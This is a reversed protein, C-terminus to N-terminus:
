SVSAQWMWRGKENEKKALDDPEVTSKKKSCTNEYCKRRDNDMMEGFETDCCFTCFDDTEKCNGLMDTNDPYNATCYNYRDQDTALASVCNESKGQKYAKNMKNAMEIRAQMLQQNLKRKTEDSEKRLKEIQQKLTSRRISIQKAALQKNINIADVTQRKLLNRQNEEEKQKINKILCDSKKKEEDLKKKIEIEENKLREAEERRIMAELDLEKQIAQLAIQNSQKVDKEMEQEDDVFIKRKIEQERDDLVDKKAQAIKAKLKEDDTTNWQARHRLRVTHCQIKFLNFHDFWEDKTKDSTDFGFPCLEARQLGSELIFCSPHEKSSLFETMQLDFVQVQSDYSEGAFITLTKNNMIVRTPIQIHSLENPTAQGQLRPNNGKNDNVAQTYMLDSEKVICKSYRQPRTSFPLVKVVPKLTKVLPNLGMTNNMTKPCPQTNCPRTLVDPGSCSAGGNKPPVCMRHTTQIGGGCALSCQCWDQLVIWYGDTMNAKGADIKLTNTDSNLTLADGATPPNLLNSSTQQLLQKEPLAILGNDRQTQITLKKLMNMYKNKEELTDLCLVWIVPKKTNGNTLIKFCYGESFNGFEQIGNENDIGGEGYGGSEEVIDISNIPLVDVTKAIDRKRSSIFNINNKFMITYFHSDTKVFQNVKRLGDFETGKSFDQKPYYKMQEYFDMNKFFAGKSTEQNPGMKLYKVWATYYLPGPGLNMDALNSDSSSQSSDSNVHSNAPQGISQIENKSKSYTPSNSTSSSSKETSSTSTSNTISSDSTATTNSLSSGASASVSTKADASTATSSTIGSSSTSGTTTDDRFKNHGKRHKFLSEAIFIHNHVKNKNESEVLTNFQFCFSIGLISFLIFCIKMKNLKM